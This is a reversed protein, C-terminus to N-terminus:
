KESVFTPLDAVQYLHLKDPMYDVCFHQEPLNYLKWSYEFQKQHVNWVACIYVGQHVSQIVRRALKEQELLYRGVSGEGDVM